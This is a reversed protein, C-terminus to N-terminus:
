WRSLEKIYLDVWEPNMQTILSIKQQRSGGKIRKEEAIAAEITEYFKYYVLKDINYKASFSKASAKTKHQLIRALLNSTVGTYLVTHHKNTLIYVYGGKQMAPGKLITIFKHSQKLVHKHVHSHGHKAIVTTIPDGPIFDEKDRGYLM